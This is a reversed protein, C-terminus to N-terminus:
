EIFRKLIIARDVNHNFGREFAVPITRDLIYFGRHREIQGTDSGLEAGLEYGDPHGADVGLSVGKSTGNPFVEFYGITVWIAYVNSRTTTLNALRELERYRFATNRDSDVAVKTQPNAQNPDRAPNAMLPMTNNPPVDARLLTLNVGEQRLANSPGIVDPVMDGAAGSRFPTPMISPLFAGGMQVPNTAFQSANGVRRSAVLSAFPTGAEVAAGPSIGKVARWVSESNVTNLNVKGPERYSSIWNYPARFNETGPAAGGSTPTNFVTPDLLTENSVFPSPVQVFEFLRYFDGGPNTNNTDTARFFNLLHSFQRKFPNPDPSTDYPSTTQNPGVPVVYNFELCLRAPTSAPVEMLELASTFPRNAWRIWPFPRLPAGLYNAGNQVNPAPGPQGYSKNLHGLTHGLRKRFYHNAAADSNPPATPEESVQRWVNYDTNAGFPQAAPAADSHSSRLGRERTAFKIKQNNLSNPSPDDPDWQDEAVMSGDPYRDEGNFVTLDFPLWDVTIYPNSTADHRRTPDALRQLFVTRVNTYTGTALMSRDKLPMGPESDLPLDRFKKANDGAVGYAEILQTGPHAESPKPYYHTADSFLPESISFGVRDTPAWPMAPDSSKVQGGPSAVPIGISDKINFEIDTATGRFTVPTNLSIQQPPSNNDDTWGINIGQVSANTRDGGGAGGPGVVAYKFGELQANNTTAYFTRDADPGAPAKNAFWVVREINVNHTDLPQRLLSFNWPSAAQPQTNPGDNALYPQLSVTDPHESVIDSVPEEGAKTHFDSIALRWVPMGDPALKALDLLWKKRNGDYVFLDSSQVLVNPDFVAMVEVFASGRPIYPQDLTQDPNQQADRRTGTNDDHDTDKVRRDHFALTETLLLVPSECGWVLAGDAGSPDWPGNFPNMDFPFPTMINDADMFDVVNISWQALKKAKLEKKRAQDLAEVAGGWKPAQNPAASPIQSPTFEFNDGACLMMLVYLYRAMLQRADYPYRDAANQQGDGNLDANVPDLPIQQDQGTVLKYNLPNLAEFADDVIGRSNPNNPDAPDDIGDGLPRNLNMRLGQRVEPALLANISRAIQDPQSVGNKSLRAFVLDTLSAMRGPVPANSLDMRMNTGAIMNPVPADWSDTTLENRRFPSSILDAGALQVLRSPLSNSDIDNPRLLRELEGISYPSDFPGNASPNAYLGRSSYRSLNLEYPNDIREGSWANGWHDPNKDWVPQGHPDLAMAMRGKVDAPTGFASISGFPAVPDPPYKDPVNFLQLLSFPDAGNIGPRGDGGYRGQMVALGSSNLVHELRIESPGFGSGRPLMLNTSGGALINGSSTASPVPRDTTPQGPLSGHANVNARGDLDLVLVAALPKYLRGDKTMQVPYGPDVWVSDLVGDGDNDVDWPGTHLTGNILNATLAPNVLQGFLPHDLHNPRFMIQRLLSKNPESPDKFLTSNHSLWYYLLAPDHFSPKVQRSADTMTPNLISSAYFALFPNQYDPADYDENAGGLGAPDTGYIPNSTPIFFAPNPLFAFPRGAADAANVRGGSTPDPNYGVGTGSFPRGNIVFTSNAATLILAAQDRGSEEAIPVLRFRPPNSGLSNAPWYELVRTSIGRAGGNIFTLVCGSYADKVPSFPVNRPTIIPSAIIDMLGGAGSQTTVAAASSVVLGRVSGSQPTGGNVMSWQGYIDELLSTTRFPSHPNMAGRIVDLAINEVVERPANGTRGVDSYARAIARARSAVIVFMVAIVVFLILL